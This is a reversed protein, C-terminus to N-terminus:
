QLNLISFKGSLVVYHATGDSCNELLSMKWKLFQRNVIKKEFNVEMATM